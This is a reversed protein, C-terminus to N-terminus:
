FEGILISSKFKISKSMGIKSPIVWVKIEESNIVKSDPGRMELLDYTIEQDCESYLVYDFTKM